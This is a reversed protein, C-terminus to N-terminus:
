AEEFDVSVDGTWIDQRRRGDAVVQMAVNERVRVMEDKNRMLGVTPLMSTEMYLLSPWRTAM